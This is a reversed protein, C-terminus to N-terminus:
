RCPLLPGPLLPRIKSTVIINNNNNEAAVCVTEAGRGEPARVITVVFAHATGADDWAYVANDGATELAVVEVGREAFFAHAARLRTM